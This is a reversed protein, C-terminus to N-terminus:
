VNQNRANRRQENRKERREYNKREYYGRAKLREYRDPCRQIIEKQLEILLRYAEAFPGYESARIEADYIAKQQRYEPRRCYEVHAAMRKARNAKEKDRITPGVKAYYAAAKAKIRDKNRARYEADYRAKDERKQEATRTDSRRALGSCKRGCYIPLGLRVARNIDGVRRTFEEACVPCIM